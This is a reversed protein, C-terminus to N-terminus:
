APRGHLNVSHTASSRETALCAAVACSTALDATKLPAETIGHSWPFLYLLARTASRAFANASSM